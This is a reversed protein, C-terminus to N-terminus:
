KKVEDKDAAKDAQEEIGDITDQLKDKVDDIVKQYDEKTVTEYSPDLDKIITVIFKLIKDDVHNDTKKSQEILWPFVMTKLIWVM